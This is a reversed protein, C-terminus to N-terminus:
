IASLSSRVAKTAASLYKSSRAGSSTSRFASSEGPPPKGLPTHAANSDQLVPKYIGHSCGQNLVPGPQGLLDERFGHRMRGSSETQLHFRTGAFVSYGHMLALAGLLELRQHFLRCGGGVPFRCLRASSLRPRWGSGLSLLFRHRAFRGEGYWLHSGFGRFSTHALTSGLAIRHSLRTSRGNTLSHSARKGFRNRHCRSLHFLRSNGEKLTWRAQSRSIDGWCLPGPLTGRAGWACSWSEWDHTASPSALRRRSVKQRSILSIPHTFSACAEERM